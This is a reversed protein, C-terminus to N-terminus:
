DIKIKIGEIDWKSRVEIQENYISFKASNKLPDLTGNFYNSQKKNIDEYAWL